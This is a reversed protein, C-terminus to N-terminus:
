SDGHRSRRVSYLFQRELVEEHITDQTSKSKALKRKKNGGDGDDDDDSSSSWDDTWRTKATARFNIVQKHPALSM